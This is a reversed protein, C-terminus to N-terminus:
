KINKLKKSLYEPLDELFKYKSIAMNKTNLLTTRCIFGDAEPCLVIGITNSDQESKIYSDIYNTYFLLQGIYEPKFKTTKLEIVVYSHTPIHYFLLDIEYSENETKLKYKEAVFSFGNGLELLFKTINQLLSAQLQRESKINNIDLFDFVYTDKFLEHALDSDAKDTITSSTTPELLSRQYAKLKFQNLVMSRSWGNRHTQNIYWIMEEHTSSKTMIEILSGWPIQAVAQQVFEDKSFENTLKLMYILNRKSYGKGYEKLDNALREIYKNGWQKRQNIISGIQYYTLIMTSNVVVMAKYQNERITQKIKNLDEAYDKELINLEKKNTM